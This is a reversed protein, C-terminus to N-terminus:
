IYKIYINYICYTLYLYIYYIYIIYIGNKNIHQMWEELQSILKIISQICLQNANLQMANSSSSTTTNTNATTTTTNTTTTTTTDDYNLTDIYSKLVTIIELIIDDYITNTDSLNNNSNQLFM